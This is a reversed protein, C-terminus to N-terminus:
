FGDGPPPTGSHGQLGNEKAWGVKLARHAILSGIFPLLWVLCYWLVKKTTSLMPIEALEISLMVGFGIHFLLILIFIAEYGVESM